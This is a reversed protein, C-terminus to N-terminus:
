TLTFLNLFNLFSLSRETESPHVTKPLHGLDPQLLILPTLRPPLESTEDSERHLQDRKVKNQVESPVKKKEQSSPQDM